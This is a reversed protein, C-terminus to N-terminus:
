TNIVGAASPRNVTRSTHPSCVAQAKESSALETCRSRGASVSRRHDLSEEISAADILQNSLEDAISTNSDSDVDYRHNEHVSHFGGPRQTNRLFALELTEIKVFVTGFRIRLHYHRMVPAGWGHDFRGIRWVRCCCLFQLADSTKEAAQRESVNVRVVNAFQLPVTGPHARSAVGSRKKSGFMM